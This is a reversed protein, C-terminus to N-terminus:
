GENGALDAEPLIVTLLKQTSQRWTLLPMNESSPAKDQAHRTLWDRVAKALDEPTLGTFYFAYNGAVERFVPIDRAIIPLKYQAAEILPLGYGEGESAAILCTSAAYVKELCEDSIGELWFLRKHLEVHTKLQKILAEVMWGQKGVIVLNVDQGQAWLEEFAALAQAHKKRPEITGVMLFSPRDALQTLCVHAEELIGKTPKSQDMDAGLHFWSISFKRQRTLGNKGLWEKLEDAVAQSICIAGDNEAVVRLWALHSEKAGAPFATPLLIPLLDYVVFQVQVGHNRLQQYFAQRAQVVQPQLDLGLFLDGSQFEVPDDALITEPCELFRLTFQRAYRYGYDATAYIPEVRYGAPPHALLQQLISRVVRQIGSRADREALESIDVLLLHASKKPRNRAMCMALAQLSADDADHPLEGVQAMAGFHGANARGYVKEMTEHYQEACARPSHRTLITQRARKGMQMRRTDDLWLTELAHVLEANSFEDQLMWVADQPLHAMSGNANVITVLGYNMCDLVTGSTEGRSLTRLQVSLDAAALYQRYAITDAWGTIHIRESCGSRRIAAMLSAGYDGDHNEGVFILQCRTDHALPSALWAELLRHNLKHRGLVGFSCVVFAAGPLKLDRRAQWRDVGHVSSRLHPIIAWDDAAGSGYWQKALRCSFDSHVIVGLAGDLVERSCPYDWIVSEHNDRKIRQELAAYGHSYYLSRTWYGPRRGTHDLWHVVGSLFFDHLVVVGPVIALLDFMHQHFHSNGFHYLVRDYRHVNESLWTSTRVSFLSRLWAPQVTEQDTIIEIDYFRSLEPLLESSYDSIGSREPPLPSVYALKPRPMSQPPIAAPGIQRAHLAELAAIACRASDDWSFREAQQLGHAVLQRRFEEDTLVRTLKSAISTVDFPDFLAEEWGVVEPLSSTNSAIVPAGCAMAELAPLGFGEHWSPFVFGACIHYLAILDDEPIYGTLVVADAALNHKRAHQMVTARAAEDIKCVIALQHSKRLAEPLLAFAAILGEINKRHDVGGTYMVFPKTLGLRARAGVATETPTDRQRFQPDVATGVNVVQKVPFGLHDIAEQGASASIALLLDARRLHGLKAEYWQEVVANELYPRRYILPILDYLIVATQIHHLVGVSTVANDRLGEFLSTVMIVDPKLDALFAERIIEAARRRWSNAEDMMHVPAPSCWACINKQPLLGDFKARIPEITEPFLDNLMLLIEHEGRNHVIAQAIAITYRGIGRLRNGTQAGQMDIVIRM